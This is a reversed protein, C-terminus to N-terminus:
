IVKIAADAQGHKGSRMRRGPDLDNLCEIRSVGGM